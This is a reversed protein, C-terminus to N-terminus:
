ELMKGIPAGFDVKFPPNESRSFKHQAYVNKADLDVNKSFFLAILSGGRAFTGLEEGAYLEAGVEQENFRISDVTVGGVVVMATKEGQEGEFVLVARRNQTLINIHKMVDSKVTVSFVSQDILEKHILKGKVPSHFRHYDAAGLYVFACPKGEFSEVSPIGIEALSAFQENKLKLPMEETSRFWTVVSDAPSYIDKSSSTSSKSALRKEVIDPTYHRGFFSNMTKYEKPNKSWEWPETKVGWFDCFKLIETESDKGQEEFTLDWSDYARNAQLLGWQVFRSRHGFIPVLWHFVLAQVVVASFPRAERAIEGSTVIVYEPPNAIEYCDYCFKAFVLVVSAFLGSLVLQSAPFIAAMVLSFVMFFTLVVNPYVCVVRQYFCHLNKRLIELNQHELNRNKVYDILQQYQTATAKAALNWGFYLGGNSLKQRINSVDFDEKAIKHLNQLRDELEDANTFMQGTIESSAKYMEDFVPCRALVPFLNCAIAEIVTIGFTESVSASLFFDAALYLNPLQTNPVMGMFTVNADSHACHKRLNNKEDEGEDSCNSSVNFVKEGLHNDWTAVEGNPAVLRFIDDNDTDFTKRCHAFLEERWPGDGVILLHYKDKLKSISDIVTEINKEKALRNVMVCLKKNQPLNLIKRTKESCKFEKLYEPTFKDAVSTPVVNLIDKFKRLSKVKDDDESEEKSRFAVKLDCYMWLLLYVIVLSYVMALYFLFVFITMPYFSTDIKSYVFGLSMTAFTTVNVIANMRNVNLQLVAEFEDSEKYVTQKMYSAMAGEQGFYRKGVSSLAPLLHNVLALLFYRTMISLYFRYGFFRDALRFLVSIAYHCYPYVKNYTMTVWDVKGTFCMFEKNMAAVTPAVNLDSFLWAPLRSMSNYYTHSLFACFDGLHKGHTKNGLRAMGREGLMHMYQDMYFNMDVHHSCYTAIGKLQAIILLPYSIICPFFLHIVDPREFLIANLLGIGPFVCIRNGGNWFNTLCLGMKEFLPLHKMDKYGAEILEQRTRSTFVKVTHGQRTLEAALNRVRIAIGHFECPAYESILVIKM